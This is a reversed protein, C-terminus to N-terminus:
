SLPLRRIRISEDRISIICGAIIEEEHSKLTELLMVAIENSKMGTAKRFLIFSPLSKRRVALLAGFDTDASVITRNQDEATRFVDSDAAAQMGLDRLHIADHGALQLLHSVKPSLANDVLLRM